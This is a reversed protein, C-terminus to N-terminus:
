QCSKFIEGFAIDITIKFLQCNTYKVQLWIVSLLTSLSMMTRWGRVLNDSSTVLRPCM